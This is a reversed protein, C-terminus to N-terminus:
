RRLVEKKELKKKRKDYYKFDRNLRWRRTKLKLLWKWDSIYVLQEGDTSRTVTAHYDDHSQGAGDRKIIVVKYHTIMGEESM